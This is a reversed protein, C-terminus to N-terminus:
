SRPHFVHAGAAIFYAGPILILQSLIWGLIATISLWFVMTRVDSPPREGKVAQDTIYATTPDVFFSFAVTGIGNGLGSLGTATTRADLAIVSGYFSAVVGVAYLGTVAVNGVLLKLPLNTPRFSAIERLPPLRVSRAVDLLVRPDFLRLSARLMSGRREFAYVGRMFLMIFTPLLLTGLIAGLTGAAIIARLQWEFRAPITGTCTAYSAAGDALSGLAPTVVLNALRAALTFFNFLSISTGIRGTRVGAIRGAYAGIQLATVVVNLAVAAILAGSFFGRNRFAALDAASCGAAAQAVHAGTM